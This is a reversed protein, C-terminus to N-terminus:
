RDARVDPRARSRRRPRSAAAGVPSRGTFPIVMFVRVEMTSRRRAVTASAAHESGEALMADLGVGTRTCDAVVPGAAGVMAVFPTTAVFSSIRSDNLDPPTMLDM